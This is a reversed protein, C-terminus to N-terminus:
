KKLEGIIEYFIKGENLYTKVIPVSGNEWDTFILLPVQINARIPSITANGTVADYSFGAAADFYGFIAVGRPYYCLNNGYFTEFFLLLEQTNTTTQWDWYADALSLLDVGRYAAAIDRLMNMSVWGVKEGSSALGPIYLENVKDMVYSTHKCGYKEITNIAANWVDEKLRQSSLGTNFGIMDLLALGNATYIHYADWGKLEGKLEMGSWPDVMGDMTKTLSVIYHDDKWAQKELTSIAASVYQNYEDIDNYGTYELIKIGAQIAAMAKIGLYIQEKGFQIAPSADDVTNACGKDPIGNGTTDCRIIFDMLKKIFKIHQNIVVDNNTRRWHVYALLIYNSSEEVEMDHSYVQIGCDVYRGVDHSMYLTNKGIDGLCLSGDKGFHSWIHLEIELLEPWITLYFPAQTYEVDITSHFYCSGEWVSFWDENNNWLVWWTNALWTHLSYIFLHKVSNGLSNNGILEDVIKSNEKVASYNDVAWRAVESLNNFYQTYKFPALQGFIRMVPKDYCCWALVLPDISEGKALMFDKKIIKDDITGSIPIIMDHAHYSTYSKKNKDSIYSSDYEVKLCGEENNVNFSDGQFGIFFTGKVFEEDTRSAWRYSSTLRKVELEFYVVPVVSFQINRPKFPIRVTLKVHLATFPEIGGLTMTTASMGQDVFEFPEGEQSLPFIFKKNNVLIGAQIQIPLGKSKTNQYIINPFEGHRILCATKNAPDWGFGIRSGLVTLADGMVHM